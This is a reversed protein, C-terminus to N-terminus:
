LAGTKRFFRVYKVVLAGNLPQGVAPRRELGTPWASTWVVYLDSGPSTTWRLRTNLALRDSQDDTQAFLTATLRPSFAYDGRFRVTNAVFASQPLTVDNREYELKLEVHPQVRLLGTLSLDTRDGDYFQGHSASAQLSWARVNAGVYKVEARDWWYDGADIVTGPVLDFPVRPGDFRRIMSLEVRDGSQFTAGLPRVSFSANDLAGDLDWVVDYSLLDFEWRRIRRADRPRPTIRTTGGWRHIGNQQVFGLAPQYGREVRDFRTVIDAHDNPYDVVARFHGGMPSGADRNWAANASVVLNDRREGLIFPLEADVGGAFSGRRLPKDSYTGMVGVYGRGLVDRRVRAVLDTAQEGRGTRVALLGLQTRGLRGQMRAGVPIDVPAGADGRGIRRSYFLQTQRRRGFEFISAGETFFTRQEPFFLPFRTLNVIQRDVEAQAFDPFTTLDATLTATVPIKVDLGVALDSSARRVETSSGDPAYEREPARGEALVFPRLEFRTRPPLATFGEVTGEQELFRFGETRRWARWLLEENTRPLFRRFNMGFSTGDARYRLTAWPILMEATWGEDTIRTRVDWIGDWEENGTEANIHEGDWLAGNSNTRFYFASRKDRLGDIMLSVYDDSRLTADRRLQTRVIGEPAHDYLWWGVALGSPTALLRVVTRESPTGGEMPEKQHFDTISDALTWDLEDLRGDLTIPASTVRASPVPAQAALAAPIAAFVAAALLAPVRLAGRRPPPM